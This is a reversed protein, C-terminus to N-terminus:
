AQVKEQVKTLLESMSWDPKFLVDEPPLSVKGAIVDRSESATLIMIKATQGWNDARIQRYVEYGDIDPLRIDLLILDPKQTIALAVGESGTMAHLTCLQAMALLDILLDALYTSDEIILVTKTDSM